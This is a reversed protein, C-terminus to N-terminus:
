PYVRIELPMKDIADAALGTITNISLLSIDSGDVSIELRTEQLQTNFVVTKNVTFAATAVSYVGVGGRTFTLTEGFTNELVVATPAATGTQSVLGVWKKYRTAGLATATVPDLSASGPPACTVMMQVGQNFAMVSYVRLFQGGPLSPWLVLLSGVTGDWEASGFDYDSFNMYFAIDTAPDRMWIQNSLVACSLSHLLVESSDCLIVTEDFVTSPSIM